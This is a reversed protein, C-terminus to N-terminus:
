EEAGTVCPMENWERWADGSVINWVQSKGIPYVKALDTITEGGQYRKRIEVVQGPTLKVNPNNEGFVIPPNTLGTEVAHKANESKTVLELNEPRNDNKIGNLHNIETSQPIDGFFYQWVLRHASVNVRKKDISTQISLYGNPM